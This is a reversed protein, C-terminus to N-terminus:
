KKKRQIKKQGELYAVLDKKMIRWSRGIKLAPIKDKKVMEWVTQYHLQLFSAAQEITMIEKNDDPSSM